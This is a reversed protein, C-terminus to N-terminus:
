ITKWGSRSVNHFHFFLDSSVTSCRSFLCIFLFSLSAKDFISSCSLLCSSGVYSSESSDRSGSVSLFSRCLKRVLILLTIFLNQGM